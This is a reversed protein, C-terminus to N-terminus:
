VAIQPLPMIGGSLALFRKGKTSSNTMARIHLDALDRIDVIGLTM